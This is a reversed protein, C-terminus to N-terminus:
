KIFALPTHQRKNTGGRVSFESSLMAFLYFTNRVKNESPLM